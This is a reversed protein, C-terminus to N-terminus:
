GVISTFSPASISRPSRVRRSVAWPLACVALAGRADLAGRLGAHGVFTPNDGRFAAAGFVHDPHVHTLM